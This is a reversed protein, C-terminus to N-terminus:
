KNVIITLHSSPLGCILLQDNFYEDLLGVPHLYDIGDDNIEM